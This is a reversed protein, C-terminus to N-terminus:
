ITQFITKETLMLPEYCFYPEGFDVGIKFGFFRARTEIEKLFRETSIFTEPENSKNEENYFQSKYCKIVEMKKYFTDSIDFIFSIPIDYNHRYYFIRKPRFPEFEGTKIKGLGSYFLADRIFNAAYIHDPHRDAPYPAFVVEPRFKRIINILLKRNKSNNIIDGDKLKLNYRYDIGLKKTAVITEQRRIQLTGRTSLEGETLDIIGVKKGAQVLKIITGGCTLEADDPHTGIFVANLNSYNSIFSATSM